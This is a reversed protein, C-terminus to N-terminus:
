TRGSQAGDQCGDQCGGEPENPDALVEEMRRAAAEALEPLVKTYRLTMSLDSHGLQEQVAKPSIGGAQLLSSCAHRLDHFRVKPLGAESLKRQFAALVVRGNLPSGDVTTFVLRWEDRWRAARLRESAQRRRHERLRAVVTPPLKVSRHSGETKPEVLEYRGRARQLAQRVELRGADLDVDEWVLGLVEGQRLGLLAVLYLAELRDGRIARLFRRTEQMDLPRAKRVVKKSTRVPVAVNRVVLGDDVAQNLATRLTGKMYHVTKPALGAELKGSVWRRVDATTLKALPLRGLDPIIHRRVHVEYGRYTWPRVNPRASHELWDELFVALTARENPLSLGDLRRGIARTLKGAVDERTRGYLYKRRGGELRLAVCWRGDSRLVITGEGAGRV